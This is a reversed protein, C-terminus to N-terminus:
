QLALNQSIEDYTHMAGKGVIPITGRLTIGLSKTHTFNKEFTLESRFKAPLFV